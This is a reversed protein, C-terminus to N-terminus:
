GAKVANEVIEDIHFAEEVMREETLEVEFGETEVRLVGFYSQAKPHGEFRDPVGPTKRQDVQEQLDKFLVYQKDPHDFLAEAQRIADRLLESFVRKPYEYPFGADLRCIEDLPVM